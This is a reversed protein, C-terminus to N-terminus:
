APKKSKSGCRNCTGSKDFKTGQCILCQYKLKGGIVKGTIGKFTKRFYFLVGLNTGLTAITFYPDPLVLMFLVPSAMMLAMMIWLREPIM